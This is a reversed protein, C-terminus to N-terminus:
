IKDYESLHKFANLVELREAEIPELKEMLRKAQTFTSEHSGKESRAMAVAKEYMDGAEKYKKQILFVEGITATKWYDGTVEKTGTIKEVRSAYDAAKKLDEETGIFVSKAAANIGTYYDDPAKEFADAYLDRSQILDNIDNSIAYKDMWTRAYIGMTEPDLHNMAYLEGLIDEAKDLDDGKGRRALALGKLQKPRLARKFNDELKELITIANDYDKLRILGEATMCGLAATIKWPVGGEEFLQVLKQTKGNKIAAKIKATATEAAENQDAAFRVADGQLPKGALANLLRLLDGGNPGDPYSTFDIYIRSAAFTPLPTSDITVPVFVFSSDSNARQQLAEYEDNVWVSDKTAKSWILIGAQTKNLAAELNKILKDGAKLVYQDLFVKHGLETLVDYLNLVWPRNVSRYSLFVNWENGDTLPKPEPAYKLWEAPIM